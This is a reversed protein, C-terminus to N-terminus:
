FTRVMSEYKSSKVPDTSINPTGIWIQTSSTAAMKMPQIRARMMMFLNLYDGNLFYAAGAGAENEPERFVQRVKVRDTIISPDHDDM